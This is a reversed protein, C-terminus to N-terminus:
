NIQGDIFLLLTTGTLKSQLMKASEATARVKQSTLFSDHCVNIMTLPCHHYRTTNKAIVYKMHLCNTDFPFGRNRM